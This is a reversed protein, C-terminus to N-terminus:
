EECRGRALFKCSIISCPTAVGQEGVTYCFLSLTKNVQYVGSLGTMGSMGATSSQSVGIRFAFSLLIPLNYHSGFKLFVTRQLKGTSSDQTLLPIIGRLKSRLLNGFSAKPNMGTIKRGSDEL